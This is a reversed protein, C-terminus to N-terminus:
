APLPRSAANQKLQHTACLADASNTLCITVRDVVCKFLSIAESIRSEGWGNAQSIRHVITDREDYIENWRRILDNMRSDLESKGTLAEVSDSSSVDRWLESIGINKAIETVQKSRFNGHNDTLEDKFLAYPENGRLCQAIRVAVSAATTQDQTFISRLVAVGGQVNSKQLPSPLMSHHEIESELVELYTKFLDRLAEEVTSVVAVIVANLLSIRVIPDTGRDTGLSLMKQLTDIADIFEDRVSEFKPASTPM